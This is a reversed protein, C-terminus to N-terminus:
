RTCILSQSIFWLFLSAIFTETTKSVGVDGFCVKHREESGGPVWVRRGTVRM